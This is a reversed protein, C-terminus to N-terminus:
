PSGGADSEHAAKRQGKEASIVEVEAGDEVRYGELIVRQGPELDTGLVEVWDKGKIGVHPHLHVAKDQGEVHRVVALV